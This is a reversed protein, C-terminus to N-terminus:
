DDDDDDDDDGDENAEDDFFMSRGRGEQEADQEMARTDQDEEDTASQATDHMGNYYYRPPDSTSSLADLASDDDQEESSEQERNLRRRKPVRAASRQGPPTRSLARVHGAASAAQVSGRVGTHVCRASANLSPTPSAPAAQAHLQDGPFVEAFLSAVYDRADIPERASASGAFTVNALQPCDDQVRAQRINTLCYRRKLDLPDQLIRFLHRDVVKVDPKLRACRVLREMLDFDGVCKSDIVTSKGSPVTATLTRSDSVSSSVVEIMRPEGRKPTIFYLDCGSFAASQM